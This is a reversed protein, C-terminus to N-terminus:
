LLFRGSDLLIGHFTDVQQSKQQQGERNRRPSRRVGPRVCVTALAPVDSCVPRWVYDATRDIPIGHSEVAVLRVGLQGGGVLGAGPGDVEDKGACVVKVASHLADLHVNEARGSGGDASDRDVVSRRVDNGARVEPRRPRPGRQRLTIKANQGSRAGARAVDNNDRVVNVPKKDIFNRQCYGAARDLHLCIGVQAKVAVRDNEVSGFRHPNDAVPVM